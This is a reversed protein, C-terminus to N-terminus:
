INSNLNHNKYLLFLFCIRPINSLIQKENNKAYFLVIINTFTDVSDDAIHLLLM